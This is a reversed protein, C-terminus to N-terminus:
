VMEYVSIIQLHEWKNQNLSQELVGNIWNGSAHLRLNVLLWAQGTTIWLWNVQEDCVTAIM